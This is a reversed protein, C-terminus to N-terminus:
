LQPVPMVWGQDTLITDLRVDHAAPTYPTDSLDGCAWAIGISIFHHGQTKWAALSRDYYGKGYGVRDGARTFGLTPVLVIDPLPANAGTPEQIGFAGRQLTQEPHWLRFVLPADPTSVVPLSVVLEQTRVWQQLLAQMQPEGQTPWFAAIHRPVPRAAQALRTRTASLWTDLLTRIRLSGQQIQKRDRRARQQKLRTRLDPATNQLTHRM